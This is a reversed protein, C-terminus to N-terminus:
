LGHQPINISHYCHHHELLSHHHHHQHSPLGSTAAEEMLQLRTAELRREILRSSNALNAFRQYDCPRVFALDSLHRVRSCAVFMLGTSFEKKGVDVVVKNLTLGQAKHITVAWALKLPLQLRSCTVGNHLWTRCLPIIPVSGDHLAPGSYSDFKVMVALPLDPPGRNQYCIAGNVLGADVWLNSNLMVRAGHAISITPELGSADDSTAKAASLGSHVAKIIAVPQGCNQLKTLNYEAVDSFAYAASIRSLCRTM